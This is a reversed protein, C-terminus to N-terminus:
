AEFYINLALCEVERGITALTNGGGAATGRLDPMLAIAEFGQWEGGAAPAVAALAEAEAVTAITRDPGHILALGGTVLAICGALTASQRRRGAFVSGSVAHSAKHLANGITR